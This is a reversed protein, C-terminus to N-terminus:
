YSHPREQWGSMKCGGKQWPGRKSPRMTSPVTMSSRSGWRHSERAFSSEQILPSMRCLESRVALTRPPLQRRRALFGSEGEVFRALDRRLSPPADYNVRDRRAASSLAAGHDVQRAAADPRHRLVVADADADGDAGRLGERDAAGHRGVSGGPRQAPELARRRSVGLVQAAATVTLDLPELIEARIFEGPHVPNHMRAEPDTATTTRM